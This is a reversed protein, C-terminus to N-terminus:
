PAADDLPTCWKGKERHFSWVQISSGAIKHGDIEDTSYLRIPVLVRPLKELDEAKQAGARHNEWVIEDDKVLEASTTGSLKHLERLQNGFKQKTTRAQDADCLFSFLVDFKQDTIDRAM